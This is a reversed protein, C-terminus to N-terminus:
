QSGGASPRRLRYVYALVEAVAKYLNAPIPQGEKVVKHLARALPPRALIPVGHKRAIERIKEAAEDTGKAVVVPARDAGDDYRLAVAYHTPNVIVVSAKAVASAVRRKALEKMRQRRKAKIQPDGDQEKGERKLEETSMKMQQGIRRRSMWYDLAALVALAGGVAWLARGILTGADAALASAQMPHQGIGGRLVAVVLAGVVLLKLLALGTRRTMAGLGFTNRLNTMPSIRGLDFGIAKFAPPWGLQALISAVAALAAGILAPAAATIFAHFAESALNMTDAGDAGLAADRTLTRLAGFAARACVALAIAGGGFTAATVVDRSLALEGRKRFERVRKATPKHTKEADSM